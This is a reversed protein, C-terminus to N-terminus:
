LAGLFHELSRVSSGHYRPSKGPSFCCVCLCRGEGGELFFVWETNDCVCLYSGTVFASWCPVLGPDGSRATIGLYSALQRPGPDQKGGNQIGESLVMQNAAPAPLFHCGAGANKGPSDVPWYIPFPFPTGLPSSDM